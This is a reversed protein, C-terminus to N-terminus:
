RARGMGKRRRPLEEEEEENVNGGDVMEVEEEEGGDRRPRKRAPGGMGEEGVEEEGEDEDDVEAQRRARSGTRVGQWAEQCSPCRGGERREGLYKNACHQHLRASCNETGCREAFTTVIEMCITCDELTDPHRTKLYQQLELLTRLSLSLLGNNDDLWQTKILRDLFAQADKKSQLPTVTRLALTSSIEFAEDEANIILDIVHKLYAVENATFTTARQAIEDGNTNVLAYYTAGTDPAQGKRLEMDLTDLTENLVGVFPTFDRDSYEVEAVECCRRYINLVTDEKAFRQLLYAQLFLRHLNTYAM